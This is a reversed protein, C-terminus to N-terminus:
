NKKKKEAEQQRKTNLRGICSACLFRRTRPHGSAGNSFIQFDNDLAANSLDRKLNDFSRPIKQPSTLEEEDGNDLVPYTSPCFYLRLYQPKKGDLFLCIDEKTINNRIHEKTPERTDCPYVDFMLPTTWESEFSTVCNDVDQQLSHTHHTSNLSM